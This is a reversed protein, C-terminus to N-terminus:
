ENVDMSRDHWLMFASANMNLVMRDVNSGDDKAKPLSVSVATSDAAAVLEDAQMLGGDHHSTLIALIQKTEVRM